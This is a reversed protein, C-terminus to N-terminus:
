TNTKVNWKFQTTVKVTDARSVKISQQSAVGTANTVYNNPAPTNHFKVPVNQILGLVALWTKSLNLGEEKRNKFAKTNRHGSQIIKFILAKMRPGSSIMWYIYISPYEKQEFIPLRLFFIM